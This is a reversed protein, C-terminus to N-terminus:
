ESHCKSRGDRKGWSGWGPRKGRDQSKDRTFKAVISAAGIVPNLDDGKVIFSVNKGCGKIQSGDVLVRAGKGLFDAIANIASSEIENLSLGKKHLAGLEEPGVSFVAIGLAKAEVKKMKEAIDRTKKSDRLELMDASDALVGAVVFPGYDEGRGTEDIGLVIEHELGAAELVVKKVEECDNGQILLKGSKYFTLISKGIGCRLEEFPSNNPIAQFSRLFLLLKKKGQGSFNLMCQM